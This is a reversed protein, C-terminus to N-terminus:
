PTASLKCLGIFANVMTIRWGRRQIVNIVSIIFKCYSKHTLLFVVLSFFLFFPLIFFFLSSAPVDSQCSIFFAWSLFQEFLEFFAKKYFSLFFNWNEKKALHVETAIKCQKNFYIMIFQQVNNILANIQVFLKYAYPKQKSLSDWLLKKWDEGDLSCSTGQRSSWRRCYETIHSTEKTKHRM